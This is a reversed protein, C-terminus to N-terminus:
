RSNKGASGKRRSGGLPRLTGRAVAVYLGREDAVRCESAGRYILLVKTGAPFMGDPPTPQHSGVYYYPQETKIEHTFQNPAPRVLNGDPIQASEPLVTM